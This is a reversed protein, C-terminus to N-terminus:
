KTNVKKLSCLTYKLDLSRGNVGMLNYSFLCITMLNCKENYIIGLGGMM